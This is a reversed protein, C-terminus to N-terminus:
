PNDNVASWDTDRLEPGWGSCREMEVDDILARYCAVWGSGTVGSYTDIKVSFPMAEFNMAKLHRWQHGQDSPHDYWADPYTNTRPTQRHTRLGQFYRGTKLKHEEQRDIIAAQVIEIKQDIASQLGGAARIDDDRIALVVPEPTPDAALAPTTGTIAPATVM